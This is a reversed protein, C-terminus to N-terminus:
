DEHRMALMARFLEPEDWPVDVPLETLHRSLPDRLWERPFVVIRGGADEDIPPAAEAPKGDLEDMLAAPLDRGVREGLHMHTVIRRNIELLYPVGTRQDVVFQVNFFGGIGFGRCLTMSFARTEPSSVFRLVVTQGKIPSTAVHREWGFSALPLGPRAVLAQSLYPGVIFKQVLLRQEQHGGLDLQDPRLLRQAAAILEDPTSVVAVGQGAFGFRRKLVVPFRLREAHALADEAGAVIAYPPVPVGLAEAAPPLMTKDVSVAYFRPDGLSAEILATLRAHLTEDIGAPAELALAFLLRVAMEDCPVLVDPAARDVVHILALLWEMSTATASLFAVRSVYRSKLALSDKPALLAVDFGARALVRPMRATGLWRTATSVLLVTRTARRRPANM